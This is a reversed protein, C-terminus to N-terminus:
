DLSFRLVTASVFQRRRMGGVIVFETGVQLLGRHDMTAVDLEGLQRWERYELSYAFVRSSPESPRGDYGIGDYNYPNDSGGAFIILGGDRNTGTAAMRYLPKPGHPPLAFWDIRAPDDAQVTGLYCEDSAQYARRDREHVAISVGDCIVMTNRVMGGAHGFVPSGPYPTAQTWRDHQTDYLQVLNVNGSNHWGSILYIYRGLYTVAVTDDVPVPMPAKLEYRDREPVYAHVTPVSVESHDEAVTYGGFVYAKGDLGVATGALRGQGGPVGAIRRWRREELNFAFAASHTDRWTKGAGLGLFSYLEDADGVSLVAVANNTVAHPLAALKETRYIRADPLKEACASTVPCFGALLLVFLHACQKPMHM